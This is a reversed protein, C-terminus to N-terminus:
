KWEVLVALLNASSAGLSILKIRGRSDTIL